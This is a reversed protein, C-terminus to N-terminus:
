RPMRRQALDNFDLGDPASITEVTWRQGTARQALAQGAMRGPQDGDTAVILLGGFNSPEPLRLGGVGSTSLAAWVSFNEHLVDCLSLGTEIGECVVLANAGSRLRVAGGTCSGLMAKDPQLHSKIPQDSNLYTRHIGTRERGDIDIAAVIAPAYLGSPHRLSPDFRLSKPLRCLISRARLYSEGHTGQIRRGRSWIKEILQDTAGHHTREKPQRSPPLQDISCIGQPLSSIIDEFSCGAHCKLLLRGDEGNAISLSPRQDQHAPCCALGYRGYWKGRLTKTIAEARM